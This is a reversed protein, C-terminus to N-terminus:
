FAEYEPYNTKDQYKAITANADAIETPTKGTPNEVVKLADALEQNQADLSRKANLDDNNWRAKIEMDDLLKGYAKQDADSIKTGNAIATKVRDVLDRQEKLDVFIKDDGILFKLATEDGGDSIFRDYLAKQADDTLADRYKNPNAADPDFYQKLAAKQGDSLKSADIDDMHLKKLDVDINKGANKRSNTIDIGQKAMTYTGLVGNMIIRLDKMTLKEGSQIKNVALSFASGIGAVGALKMLVPLGKKVAKMVKGTSAGVGLGPIISAADFLLGMGLNGLDGMQFGDRRIDAMFTSATGALGTAVSAPTFGTLGTVVSALDAGLGALEFWDADNFEGFQFAGAEETTAPMYRDSQVIKPASSAPAASGTFLGGQQYSRAFEHLRGSRSMQGTPAWLGYGTLGPGGTAIQGFKNYWETRGIYNKFYNFLINAYKEADAGYTPLLIDRWEKRSLQNRAWINGMKNGVLSLVTDKFKKLDKPDINQLNYFFEPSLIQAIEGDLEIANGNNGLVEQVAGGHFQVTGKEPNFTVDLGM